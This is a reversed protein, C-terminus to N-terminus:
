ITARNRHHKIDCLHGNDDLWQEKRLYSPDYSAVRKWFRDSHDLVDLHCLEHLIVYDQVSRPAFLLRTSFSLEGHQSCSGWRSSMNRLAISKIKKAFRGEHMTMVRREFTPKYLRALLDHIMRYIVDSKAIDTWDGPVELAMVNDEVVGRAMKRQSHSIRVSFEKDTTTVRKCKTVDFPMYAARFPESDQWQKKIWRSCWKKYENLQQDTCKAPVRLLVSDRGTSVRANTRKEFFVTVPITHGDVTVRGRKRLVTKSAM